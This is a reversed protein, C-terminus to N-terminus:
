GFEKGGVKLPKFIGKGPPNFQNVGLNKFFGEQFLPFFKVWPKGILFTKRLLAGKWNLAGGFPHGLGLGFLNGLGGELLTPRKGLKKLDL